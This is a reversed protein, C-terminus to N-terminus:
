KIDILLALSRVLEIKENLDINGEQRPVRSIGTIMEENRFLLLLLM